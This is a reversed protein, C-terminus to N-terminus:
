PGLGRKNGMRAQLKGVNVVTIVDALSEKTKTLDDRIAQIDKTHENDTQMNKLSLWRRLCDWAAIIGLLAIIPYAIDIM